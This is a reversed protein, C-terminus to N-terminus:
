DSLLSLEPLLFLALAPGPRRHDGSDGKNNRYSLSGLFHVKATSHGALSKLADKRVEQKRSLLNCKTNWM